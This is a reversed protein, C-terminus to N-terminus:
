LAYFFKLSEIEEVFLLDLFASKIKFAWIYIPTLSSNLIILIDNGM